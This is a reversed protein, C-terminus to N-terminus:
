RPRSKFFDGRSRPTYVGFESWVDELESLAQEMRARDKMGVATVLANILSLPAVFSDVFSAMSTSATLIVDASGALPSSLDRTIAMVKAGRKKALEAVHVTQATYRPFSVAILLDDSGLGLVPEFVAGGTQNLLRVDRLVWSLTFWLFYALSFASRSGVVVIKKSALIMEVARDFDSFSIRDLTLRINEIDGQLIRVLPHDATEALTTASGALRDVTSLQSVLIDQLARQFEPYGSYGLASALRVVTSESVGAAQGLARATMFAAKQYSGLVYEAVVRQGDSLDGMKMKIREFVDIEDSGM